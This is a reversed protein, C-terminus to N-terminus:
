HCPTVKGQKPPEKNLYPEKTFKVQKSQSPLELEFLIIENTKPYPQLFIAPVYLTVQSGEIPWYRGLNNGNVFAVGKHWGSVDLFTDKPVTDNSPITFYGRYFYPESSEETAADLQQVASINSLPFGTINWNTLLYGSLTVNSVLGKFDKMESGYNIRGQNEVLLQLTSRPRALLAASTIGQARSLVTVFMRDILVIARDRVGPVDLLAPDSLDDPIITEYLIFGSNQGLQEFTKPYLSSKYKKGLTERLLDSLLAAVPYLTVTGYDGKESPVPLPIDPLPLYQGIMERIAFYKPTPDGAENLPANYDYSTLQPEYRDNYNAGSTFGFNTGGFFVYFNVSANMELMEELRTVIAGTNVRQYREGWHSLWGPYFESNVLPGQPEHRRMASFSSAVNSGVGFDVTAYVDQIKGCRLMIDSSGDTTFLLADNRVYQKFKDRLWSTYTFDCAPYSGYENEVQVMIVPGGNGYFKPAVLPLLYSLWGDVYNLFSQDSTRLRIDPNLTLLWYPLGGMDREACIYPGVRLIVLLGEEQAIDIFHLLDLDGSFIYEGPEPAHQSWEVYTSVVNLGAARLKRLRDRWLPHPLRFYHLSGAVYRFPEGDLLFTNNEYDVTFSRPAVTTEEADQPRVLQLLLALVVARLWM